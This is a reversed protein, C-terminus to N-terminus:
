PAMWFRANFALRVSAFAWKLVPLHDLSEYSSDLLLVFERETNRTLKIYKDILLTAKDAIGKPILKRRRGGNGATENRIIDNM